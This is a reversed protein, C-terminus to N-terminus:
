LERSVLPVSLYDRYLDVLKRKFEIESVMDLIEDASAIINVDAGREYDSVMEELRKKTIM